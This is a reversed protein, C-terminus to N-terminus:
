SDTEFCNEGSALETNKQAVRVDRLTKYAERLKEECRKVNREAEDVTMTVGSGAM